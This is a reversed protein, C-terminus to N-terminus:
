EIVSPSISISAPEEARSRPSGRRARPAEGGSLLGLVAGGSVNAIAQEVQRACGAGVEFQTVDVRGTGRRGFHQPLVAADVGDTRRVGEGFEALLEGGMVVDSNHM